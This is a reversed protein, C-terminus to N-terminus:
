GKHDFIKAFNKYPIAFKQCFKRYSRRAKSPSSKRVNERIKSAFFNKKIKSYWIKYIINYIIKAAFIYIYPNRYHGGGRFFNRAVPRLIVLVWCAQKSACGLSMSCRKSSTIPMSTSCCLTWQM